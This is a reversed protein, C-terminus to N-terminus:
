NDGNEVVMEDNSNEVPSILQHLRIKENEDVSSREILAHLVTDWGRVAALFPGFVDALTENIEDIIQKKKKDLEALEKSQTPAPTQKTTM